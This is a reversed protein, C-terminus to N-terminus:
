VFVNQLTLKNTHTSLIFVSGAYMFVDQCAKHIKSMHTHTHTHTYKARRPERWLLLHVFMGHKASSFPLTLYTAKCLHKSISFKFANVAYYSLQPKVNVANLMCSERGAHIRALIFCM